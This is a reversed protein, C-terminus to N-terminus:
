PFASYASQMQVDHISGARLIVRGKCAVGDRRAEVLVPGELNPLAAIEPASTIFVIREYGLALLRTLIREQLESGSAGTSLAGTLTGSHGGGASSPVGSARGNELLSLLRDETRRQGDRLDILVHELRRLDLETERGALKEVSRATSELTGLASMSQEIRALRLQIRILLAILAGLLGLLGVGFGLAIWDLLDM